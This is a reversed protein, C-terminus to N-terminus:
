EDLLVDDYLDMWEPNMSNILAEKKARSGGKILKEAAIAEDIHSYFEYYVLM